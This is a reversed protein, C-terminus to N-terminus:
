GIQQDDQASVGFLFEDILAIAEESMAAVQEREAPSFKALVYDRPSVGLAPRGIGLRLRYLTQEAFTALVSRVGNHGKASGRVTLKCEGLPIEMDDHLVLLDDGKGLRKGVKDVLDRGSNNMLGLPYILNVQQQESETAQEEWARLIAEGLNHRTGGYEKENNGLGFLIKM